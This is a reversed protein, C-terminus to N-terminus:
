HKYKCLYDMFDTSDDVSHYLIKMNNLSTKAAIAGCYGSTGEINHLSWSTAQNIDGDISTVKPKESAMFTVEIDELPKSLGIGDAKLVAEKRTWARYFAMVKQDQDLQHFRAKESVSLVANELNHCLINPNIYEIDVGIPFGRAFGYIILDHSHSLNFELGISQNALSPKGQKGYLFEIVANPQSLYSQLLMRLVARSITFRKRLADTAFQGERYKEEESLLERYSLYREVHSYHNITWLHIEQDNSFVNTM